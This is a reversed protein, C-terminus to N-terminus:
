FELSLNLIEVEFMKLVILYIFNLNFDWRASQAGFYKFTTSPTWDQM